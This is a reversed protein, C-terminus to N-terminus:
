EAKEESLIQTTIDKYVEKQAEGIEQLAQEIFRREIDTMVSSDPLSEFLRDEM